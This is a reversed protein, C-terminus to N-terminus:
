EEEERTEDPEDSPAKAVVVSAPRITRSRLRYGKQLERLVTNPEQLDTEEQMLAAHLEPDFIESGTEICTLGRTELIGIMKDHLLQMGRYLPDEAGHDQEAATMVREMDDLIPLLDKILSENAFERTQDIEKQVRKKYNQFDAGLRRLRDLLEEKEQAPTLPEQQAQEPELRQQDEDVQDTEHKKKGKM